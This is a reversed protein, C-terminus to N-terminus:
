ENEDPIENLTINREKLIESFYSKGSGSKGTIGIIM